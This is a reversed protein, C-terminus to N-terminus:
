ASKKAKRSLAFGALGLGFIALSTPEPVSTVVNDYTYTVEVKGWSGTAFSNTFAGTGSEVSNNIATTAFGTFDFDVASGTTFDNMNVSSLTASLEGSSINYTYTDGGAMTFTNAPLSSQDTLYPNVFDAAAFIYDDASSTSVKWDQFLSIAVDARGNAASQNTSSGASDLQGFVRVSVGTLNNASNDFSNISITQVLNGIAVDTSSGQTGFSATETIIGAFATSSALLLAGTTLLKKM